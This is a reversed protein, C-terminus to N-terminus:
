FIMKNAYYKTNEPIFYKKLGIFDDYRITSDVFDTPNSDYSKVKAFFQNYQDTTDFKIIGHRIEAQGNPNDNYVFFGKDTDYIFEQNEFDVYPFISPYVFGDNEVVPLPIDGILVAGVLKSSEDKIGEFYMNELMQSIEHAKLTSPDIPLVIAKSNDIKKQIYDVAYRELNSKIGQYINKDVLVAVINTTDPNTAAYVKKRDIFFSNQM